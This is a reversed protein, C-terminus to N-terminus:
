LKYVGLMPKYKQLYILYVSNNPNVLTYCSLLCSEIDAKEVQSSKNVIHHCISHQNQFM